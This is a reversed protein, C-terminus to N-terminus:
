PGIVGAPSLRLSRRLGLLGMRVSEPHLWALYYVFMTLSFFGVRVTVEIALHFAVGAVLVWPRARRNWVLVALGLEVALTAYTALNSVLLSETISAPLDLRVLEGIRLAYSVATGDNWTTGRVKTWVSFLYIVSFQVQILRLPWASRLPFEWFEARSRRWRDLSLAAGAPVFMFYFSFVRLAMDGAQFVWPNRRHLSIVAVFAVVAALRTHFGLVLGAAAAVLLGFLVVTFLDSGVADLLSWAWPIDPGQPLIGSTGFFTSLNLSLTLAWALLLVGYAIRVVAITSTPEPTLWFDDWAKLTSRM